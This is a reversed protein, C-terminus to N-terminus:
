AGHRSSYRARYAEYTLRANVDPHEVDWPQTKLDTFHVLQAGEPKCDECNWLKPIAATRCQMNRLATKTHNHVDSPFDCESSFISLEDSGDLLTVWKGAERYQWLESIDGLVLMDVDMYIANAYGMQRCLAPVAYRVNTFGTCGTEPMGIGEPRVIHVITDEATNEQISFPTM